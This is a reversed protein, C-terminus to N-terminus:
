YVRTVRSMFHTSEPRPFYLLREARWPQDDSWLRARPRVPSCCYTRNRSASTPRPTKMECTVVSPNFSVAKSTPVKARARRPVAAGLTAISRADRSPLWYGTMTSADAETVLATRPGTEHCIGSLSPASSSFSLQLRPLEAIGSENNMNDSLMAEDPACTCLYSTSM